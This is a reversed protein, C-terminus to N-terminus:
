REKLKVLGEQKPPPGAELGRGGTKRGGERGGRGGPCECLHPKDSHVGDGFTWGGSM